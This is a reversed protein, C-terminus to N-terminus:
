KLPRKLEPEAYLKADFEAGTEKWWVKWKEVLRDHQEQTGEMPSVYTGNVLLELARATDDCNRDATKVGERVSYSRVGTDELLPVLFPVARKDNLWKLQTVAAVRVLQDEDSLALVAAAFRADALSPFAYSLVAYRVGPAPDGTAKVLAHFARPDKLNGVAIVACSRVQPDPDGMARVLEPVAPRAVNGLNCLVQMAAIRAKADPGTLDARLHDVLPDGLRRLANIVDIRRQPPPHIMKGEGEPPHHFEELLQDMTMRGVDPVAEKTEAPQACVYLASAGFAVAAFFLFTSKRM